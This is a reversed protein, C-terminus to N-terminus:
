HMQRAREYKQVEEVPYRLTGEHKVYRPGLGLASCLGIASASRGWRLALEQQSLMQPQPIEMSPQPPSTFM